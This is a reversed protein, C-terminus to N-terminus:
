RIFDKRSEERIVWKQIRNVKQSTMVDGANAIGIDPDVTTWSFNNPGNTVLDLPGCSEVTAAIQPSVVVDKWTKSVLNKIGTCSSKHSNLDSMILDTARTDWISYWHIPAKLSKPISLDKVIFTGIMYLPASRERITLKTCVYFGYVHTRDSPIICEQVVSKTASYAHGELPPNGPYFIIPAAQEHDNTDIFAGAPTNAYNWAFNSSGSMDLDWDAVGMGQPCDLKVLPTPNPVTSNTRTNSWSNKLYQLSNNTFNNVITSVIIKPENGLNTDAFDLNLTLADKIGNHSPNMRLKLADVNGHILKFYEQWGQPTKIKLYRQNLVIKGQHTPVQEISVRLSVNEPKDQYSKLQNLYNTLENKAQEFKARETSYSLGDCDSSKSEVTATEKPDGKTPPSTTCVPTKYGLVECGSAVKTDCKQILTRAADEYEKYINSKKLVDSDVNDKYNSRTTKDVKEAFDALNDQDLNFKKFNLNLNVNSNDGITALYNENNKTEYYGNKTKSTLDFRVSGLTKNAKNGVEIDFFPSSSSSKNVVQTLSDEIAFRNKKTFSLKIITEESNQSERQYVLESDANKSKKLQAENDAICAELQAVDAATKTTHDFLNYFGKDESSDLKVGGLFGRFGNYNDQKSKYPHGWEKFSFPNGHNVVVGPVLSKSINGGNYVGLTLSNYFITTQEKNVKADPLIFNGAVYVPGHFENYYSGDLDGFKMLSFTHLRRPYFTYYSISEATKVSLCSLRTTKIDSSIKIGVKREDGSALNTFDKVQFVEVDISNVCDKIKRSMIYLPHSENMDELIQGTIKFKLKGDAPAIKDYTLLTNTKQPSSHYRLFNLALINNANAASPATTIDTGITDAGWLIRELNGPYTVIDEMPSSSSCKNSLLLDSLGNEYNICWRERIGHVVYDNLSSIFVRYNLQSDIKKKEGQLRPLGDKILYTVGALGLGIVGLVTVISMGRQGKIISFLTSMVKNYEPVM